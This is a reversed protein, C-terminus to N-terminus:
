KRRVQARAGTRSGPAEAGRVIRKKQVAEDILSRVVDSATTDRRQCLMQFAEKLEPSILCTFRAFRSM